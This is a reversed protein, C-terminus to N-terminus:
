RKRDCAEYRKGEDLRTEFDGEKELSEEVGGGGGRLVLESMLFFCFSPRHGSSYEPTPWQQVPDQKREPEVKEKEGDRFRRRLLGLRM